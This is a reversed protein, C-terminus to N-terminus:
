VVSNGQDALQAEYVQQDIKALQADAQEPTLRGYAVEIMLMGMETLGVRRGLDVAREYSAHTVAKLKYSLVLAVIAAISMAIPLVLGVVAGPNKGSEIAVVFGIVLSALIAVICGARLWAVLWSKFSIPISVGRFGGDSNKELVIYSGTPILPIYYLHGFQTVVHFLGPVEDVKGAHTTGWIIVM